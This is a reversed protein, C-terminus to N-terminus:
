GDIKEGLEKLTKSLHEIQNSIHSAIAKIREPRMLVLVKGHPGHAVLLKDGTKLKMDKRADAPIVIQGKEGVTAMGYFHHKHLQGSIM